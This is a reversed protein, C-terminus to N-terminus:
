DESLLSRVREELAVIIEEPGRGSTDVRARARAAVDQLRGLASAIEDLAARAHEEPLGGGQAVVRELHDRPAADLWVGHASELVRAGFGDDLLLQDPVEIVVRDREAVLAEWADRGHRRLAGTGGFEVQVRDIADGVDVFPVVLRAALAAGLTSKGAGRLGLLAVRGARSGSPPALWEELALIRDPPLDRVAAVIRALRADREGGLPILDAVPLELSTALATLVNLSPNATGAELQALYRESTGSAVALQRRTLALRSRASRLRRGVEASADRDTPIASGERM